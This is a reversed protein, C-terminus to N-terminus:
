NCDIRTQFRRQIKEWKKIVREKRSNEGQEEKPSGDCNYDLINENAWKIMNRTLQKSGRCPDDQVFRLNEINSRLVEGARNDEEESGSGEFCASEMETIKRKYEDVLKLGVRKTKAKMGASWKPFSDAYYTDVVWELKSQLKFVKHEPPKQASIIAFFPLLKM